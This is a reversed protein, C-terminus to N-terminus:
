TFRQLDLELETACVASLLASKSHQTPTAQHNSCEPAAQTGPYGDTPQVCVEGNGVPPRQMERSPSAADAEATRAAGM